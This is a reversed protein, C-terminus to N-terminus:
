EEMLLLDEDMWTKSHPQLLETEDKFAPIMKQRVGALTLIKVEERSDCVNEFTHLITFGKWLTKLKSQGSGDTSDSNTAGTSKIYYLKSNSIVRQDVPQLISATNAPMFFLM